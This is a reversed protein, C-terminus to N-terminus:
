GVTIRRDSGLWEQLRNYGDAITQATEIAEAEQRADEAADLQTDAQQDTQEDYTM